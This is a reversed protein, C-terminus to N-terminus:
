KYKELCNLAINMAFNFFYDIHHGSECIAKDEKIIKKTKKDINRELLENCKYCKNTKGKMDVFTMLINEAFSKLKTYDTIRNRLNASNFRKAYTLTETDCQINSLAIIEVKNCVCFDVIKRSVFNCYYNSNRSIKKWCRRNANAGVTDKSKNSKYKSRQIQRLYKSILNKYKDGGKVFRSKIFNGSKDVIVCTAINNRGSFAVGCIRIDQNNEMREKITTLNEVICKEPIVLMVIKKNIEIKPSLINAEKPINWKSIACEYWKWEKGNYLKIKMKRNDIYAYLEKTLQIPLNFKRAPNPPTRKDQIARKVKTTYARAQAIAQTCASRRIRSPADTEFYEDPVEGTQKDVMTMKEIKSRCVVSVNELLEQHRLIISYYILVLKNFEVSTLNFYELYETYLRIKHFTVYTGIKKELM